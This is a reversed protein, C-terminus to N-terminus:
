VVEQWCKLLLTIFSSPWWRWRERERTEQLVKSEFRKTFVESHLHWIPLILMQYLVLASFHGKSGGPSSSSTIHFTWASSSLFACYGHQLLSIWLLFQVCSYVHMLSFIKSLAVLLCIFIFIFFVLHERSNFFLPIICYARGQFTLIALTTTDSRLSRWLCIADMLYHAGLCKYSAFTCLHINSHDLIM